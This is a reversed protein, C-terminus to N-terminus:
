EDESEEEVEIVEIVNDTELDFWDNTHRDNAIDYAEIKSDASVNMWFLQQRAGLVRFLPM